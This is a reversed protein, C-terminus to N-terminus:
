RRHRPRVWLWWALGGVAALALLGVMWVVIAGAYWFGTVLTKTAETGDYRYTTTLSYRGPLWAVKTGLLGVRYRRFSEPLIVGSAENIAAREVVRGVPDKVEVVGRPVVHVNGGNQFRLEVRGPLRVWGAASTQSALRLDVQQGGDKVALVLSSLVQKVGVQQSAPQGADDVATALVAGYHGGPALTARNDITVLVEMTAGASVFVANKELVMWSALGYKHVLESAPTGLFAVGGQEDLAGFDVVSLRFNQDTPNRNTLKLAYQVSPKDAPVVVQAFAPSVVLGTGGTAASAWGPWFGSVLAFIIGACWARGRRM